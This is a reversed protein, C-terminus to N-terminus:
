QRGLPARQISDWTYYAKVKLCGHVNKLRLSAAIKNFVRFSFDTFGTVLMATYLFNTRNGIHIDHDDYGDCFQEFVTAYKREM